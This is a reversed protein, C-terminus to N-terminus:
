TAEKARMPVAQKVFLAMAVAAVGAVVDPLWAPLARLMGATEFMHLAAGMVLMPVLCTGARHSRGTGLALEVVFTAVFPPLLSIAVDAVGGFVADFNRLAGVRAAVQFLDIVHVGLLWVLLAWTGDRRGDDEGLAAVTRRPAVLMGGSRDIWQLLGNM